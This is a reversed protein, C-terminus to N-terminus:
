WILLVAITRVCWGPWAAKLAIRCSSISQFGNGANGGETRRATTTPWGEPIWTNLAWRVLPPPRRSTSVLSQGTSIPHTARCLQEVFLLGVITAAHAIANIRGRKSENMAVVHLGLAVPGVKILHLIWSSDTAPSIDGTGHRSKASLPCRYRLHVLRTRPTFRVHRTRMRIDAESGCCVKGSSLGSPRPALVLTSRSLTSMNACPM